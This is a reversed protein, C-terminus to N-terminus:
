PEAGKKTPQKEQMRLRELREMSDSNPNLRVKDETVRTVKGSKFDIHELRHCNALEFCM